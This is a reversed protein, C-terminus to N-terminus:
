GLLKIIDELTEINSVYMSVLINGDKDQKYIKCLRTTQEWDISVKKSLKKTFIKYPYGYQKEFVKDNAEIVEFKLRIIDEYNIQENIM